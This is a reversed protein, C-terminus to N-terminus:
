YTRGSCSSNRNDNSMASFSSSTSIGVSSHEEVVDEDMQSVTLCFEPVGEKGDSEGGCSSRRIQDLTFNLLPSASFSPGTAQGDVCSTRRSHCPSDLPTAGFTTDSARCDVLSNDAGDIFSDEPPRAMLNDDEGEGKHRHDRQQHHAVAEQFCYHRNFDRALNTNSDNVVVSSVSETDSDGSLGSAISSSGVSQVAQVRVQRDAAGLMRDGLPSSLLSTTTSCTPTPPALTSSTHPLLSNCSSTFVITDTSSAYAKLAPAAAAAVYSEALCDVITHRRRQSNVMPPPCCDAPCDRAPHFRRYASSFSTPPLNMRPPSKCPNAPGQRPSNPAEVVGVTLMGETRSRPRAGCFEEEPLQIEEGRPTMQAM